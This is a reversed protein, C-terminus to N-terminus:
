EVNTKDSKNMPALLEEDGGELSADKVAAKSPIHTRINERTATARVWKAKKLKRRARGAQAVAEEKLSEHIAGNQEGRKPRENANLDSGAEGSAWSSIDTM